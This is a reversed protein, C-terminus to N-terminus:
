LYKFFYSGGFKNSLEQETFQLILEQEREGMKVKWNHEAEYLRKQLDLKEKAALLLQRKAQNLEEQLELLQSEAPKPPAAEDEEVSDTSAALDLEYNETLVIGTM